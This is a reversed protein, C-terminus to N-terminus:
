KRNEEKYDLYLIFFYFFSYLFLDIPIVFTLLILVKPSFNNMDKITIRHGLSEAVFLTFICAQIILNFTYLYNFIYYNDSNFFTLSFDNLIYFRGIFIFDEEIFYEILFNLFHHINFSLIAISVVTFIMFIKNKM